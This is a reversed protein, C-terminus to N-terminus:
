LVYTGGIGAHNIKTNSDLSNYQGTFFYVEPVLDTVPGTVFRYRLRVQIMKSHRSILESELSRPDEQELHDRSVFAAIINDSVHQHLQVEFERASVKGYDTNLGVESSDEYAAGKLHIATATFNVFYRGEITASIADPRNATLIKSASGLLMAHPTALWTLNLTYRSGQIHDPTLVRRLDTDLYSNAPMSSDNRMIEIETLITARNWWQGARIAYWRSLTDKSESTTRSTYGLSVGLSSLQSITQSLGISGRRELTIVQSPSYLAPAGSRILTGSAQVQTLHGQGPDGFFEGSSTASVSAMDDFREEGQFRVYAGELRTETPSSGEAIGALSIFSALSFIHNIKFM